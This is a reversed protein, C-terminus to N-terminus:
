KVSLMTRRCEPVRCFCECERKLQETVPEDMELAYDYFIEEGARLDRLAYIFVREDEEEIAECNPQCSHNIWRAENGGIAPDIVHIGDDLGFLFTHPDDLDDPVDTWLIRKGTYEIIRTGKRISKTAFVGRGHVPSGRVELLTSLNPRQAM